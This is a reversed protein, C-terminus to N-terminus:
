ISIGSHAESAKMAMAKSTPIKTEKFIPPSFSNSSYFFATFYDGSKKYWLKEHLRSKNRSIPLYDNSFIKVNLAVVGILIPILV